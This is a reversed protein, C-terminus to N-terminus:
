VATEEDEQLLQEMLRIDQQLNRQRAALSLIYVMGILWMIAYGLVLYGNFRNPDVGAQLLITLTVLLNTLM